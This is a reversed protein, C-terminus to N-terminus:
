WLKACGSWKVESMDEWFGMDPTRIEKGGKSTFPTEGM